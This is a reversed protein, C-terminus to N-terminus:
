RVMVFGSDTNSMPFSTSFPFSTSGTTSDSRRSRDDHGRLRSTLLTRVQRLSGQAVLGACYGVTRDKSLPLEVRLLRM